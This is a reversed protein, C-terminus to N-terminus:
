GSSLMTDIPLLLVAAVAASLAMVVAGAAYAAPVPATTVILEGLLAGFPLGGWAIM